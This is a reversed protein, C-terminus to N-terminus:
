SIPRTSAGRANVELEATLGALDRGWNGSTYMVGDVVVPTAELGRQTGVKYEWAFGLREVNTADIASLPSYYSGAADRGPTFWQEPEAAANLLRAENVQAYHTTASAGSQPPRPQQGCGVLLLISILTSALTRM